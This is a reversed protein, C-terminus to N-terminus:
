QGKRYGDLIRAVREPTVQAHYDKGVLMVPSLACAGLCNVTELTFLGDPTTEGPGIGLRHHITEALQPGGRLHCSTGLCVQIVYKGRPELSFAKYFTAIRYVHALNLDLTRAVQELAPRPLYNHEEQIDQLMPLLARKGGGYRAALREVYEELETIETECVVAM